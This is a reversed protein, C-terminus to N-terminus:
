GCGFRQAGEAGRKAVLTRPGLSLISSAARQLPVRGSLLCVEEKNGFVIESLSAAHACYLAADREDAWLQSRYDIDFVTRAGGEHARGLALFFQRAARHSLLALAM